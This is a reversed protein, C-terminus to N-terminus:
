RRLMRSLWGTAPSPARDLLPGSTYTHELRKPTRRNWAHRHAPSGVSDEVYGDQEADEIGHSHRGNAVGEGWATYGGSPLHHRHRVTYSPSPRRSVRQDVSM